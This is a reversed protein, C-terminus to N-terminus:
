RLFVTRTRNRQSRQQYILIHILLCIIFLLFNFLWVCAFFFNILCSKESTTQNNVNTLNFLSSIEEKRVLKTSFEITIIFLFAFIITLCIILLIHKIRQSYKLPHNFNTLLRKQNPSSSVNTLTESLRHTSILGNLLPNKQTTTTTSSHSTKDMSVGHLYQSSKM